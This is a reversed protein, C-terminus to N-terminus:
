IHVSVQCITLYSPRFNHSFQSISHAEDICVFAIPPLIKLLSKASDWSSLSEPAILLVSVTRAKLSEIVVERKKQTM